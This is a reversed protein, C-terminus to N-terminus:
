RSNGPSFAIEVWCIRSNMFVNSWCIFAIKINAKDYLIKKVKIVKFLLDDTVM